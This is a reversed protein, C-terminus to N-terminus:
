EGSENIIKKLYFDAKVKDGLWASSIFDTCNESDKDAPLGLSKRRKKVESLLRGIRRFKKM